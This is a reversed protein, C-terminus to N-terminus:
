SIQASTENRHQFNPQLVQCIRTGKALQTPQTPPSPLYLPFAHSTWQKGMVGPNPNPYQHGTLLVELSILGVSSGSSSLTDLPSLSHSGPIGTHGNRGLVLLAGNFWETSFSARFFIWLADGASLPCLVCPRPQCKARLVGHCCLAGHPIDSCPIQCFEGREHQRHSGWTIINCFGKCSSWLISIKKVYSAQAPWTWWPFTYESPHLKGMKNM